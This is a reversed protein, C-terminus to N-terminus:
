SLIKIAGNIQTAKVTSQYDGCGLFIWCKSRTMSKLAWPVLPMLFLQKLMQSGHFWSTNMRAVLIQIGSKQTPLLSLKKLGSMGAKKLSRLRLHLLHAMGMSQQQFLGRSKQVLQYQRVAAM